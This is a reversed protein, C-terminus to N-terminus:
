EFWIAGVSSTLTTKGTYTGSTWSGECNSYSIESINLTVVIDTKSANNAFSSGTLTQPGIKTSCFPATIEIQSGGPCGLHTVGDATVLFDCGNVDIPVNIFGFATCNEYKPTLTIEGTTMSAMGSSHVTKCTVTGDKTTFVHGTSQVGTVPFQPELHFEAASASTAGLTGVVAVVLGISRSRFSM